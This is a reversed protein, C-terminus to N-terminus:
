ALAPGGAGRGPLILGGLGIQQFVLGMRQHILNQFVALEGFQLRGIDIGERLQDAPAAPMQMGGVVLGDGGGPPKGAAVGVQLVNRDAALGPALDALRKNGGRRSPHDKRGVIGLDFQPHHRMNGAIRPQALGELLSLIDVTGGGRRYKSHRRLLHRRLLPTLGLFDIEPDDVADGAKPQGPPQPDGVIIRLRNDLVIEGFIGIHVAVDGLGDGKGPLMFVHGGQQVAPAINGIDGAGVPINALIGLPRRDVARDLAARRVQDFQRHNVDVPSQLGLVQLRAHDQLHM